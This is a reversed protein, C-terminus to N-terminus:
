LLDFQSCSLKCQEIEKPSSADQVCYLISQFNPSYTITDHELYSDCVYECLKPYLISNWEKCRFSQLKKCDDKCLYYKSQYNKDFNNPTSKFFFNFFCLISILFCGLILIIVNCIRSLM